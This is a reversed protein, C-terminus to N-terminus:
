KRDTSNNRDNHEAMSQHPFPQLMQQRVFDTLNGVSKLSVTQHFLDRAQDSEIGFRRRFGAAYPPFSDHLEVGKMALLRRRLVSMDSGFGSFNHLFSPARDALVFWRTSQGNPDKFHFVQALTVLQGLAENEFRALFVSESRRLVLRADGGRADFEALRQRLLALLLSVPFSLQRRAMLRPLPEKGEKSASQQLYACGEAEDLVLDLGIVGVYDRVAAQRDVLAAFLVEDDERHVVGKMLAIVVHPREPAHEPM